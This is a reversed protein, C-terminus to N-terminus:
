ITKLIEDIISSFTVYTVNTDSALPIEGISIVNPPALTGRIIGCLSGDSRKVVASGSSGQLTQHSIILEDIKMTKMFLRRGKASVHAISVTELFSGLTSYPYGIVLLEEGIGIENFNTNIKPFSGSLDCTLGRFFALDHIPDTKILDVDIAQTGDLPYEQVTGVNGMHPPISIKFEKYNGIQHLTSVFIPFGNKHGILVASSLLKNNSALPLVIAM